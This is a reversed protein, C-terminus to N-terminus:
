AYLHLQKRLLVKLSRLFKERRCCLVQSVPLMLLADATLRHM